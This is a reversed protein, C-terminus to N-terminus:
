RRCATARFRARFRSTSTRNATPRRKKKLGRHGGVWCEEPSVQWTKNAAAVARQLDQAEHGRNGRTRFSGRRGGVSGRLGLRSAGGRALGRICRRREGRAFRGRLSLGNSEIVAGHKTRVFTIRLPAAAWATQKYKWRVRRWLDFARLGEGVDGRAAARRHVARAGDVPRGAPRARRPDAREARDVPRGEGGSAWRPPRAAARRALVAAPRDNHAPAEDSHTEVNVGVGNCPDAAAGAALEAGDVSARM